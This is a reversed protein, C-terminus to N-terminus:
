VKKEKKFLKVLTAIGVIISVIVNVINAEPVEMSQTVEPALLSASAGSVGILIASLKQQLM